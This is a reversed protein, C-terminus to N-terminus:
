ITSNVTFIEASRSPVNRSITLDAFISRVICLMGSAACQVGGPSSRPGLLVVSDTHRAGLCNRYDRM